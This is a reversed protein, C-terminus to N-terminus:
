YMELSICIHTLTGTAPSILDTSVLTSIRTKQVNICQNWLDWKGKHESHIFTWNGNKSSSRGALFSLM